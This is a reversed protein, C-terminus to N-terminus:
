EVPWLFKKLILAIKQFWVGVRIGVIIFIINMITMLDPDIGVIRHSYALGVLLGLIAGLLCYVLTSVYNMDNVIFRTYMTYFGIQPSHCIPAIVRL